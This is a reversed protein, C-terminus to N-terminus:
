HSLDAALVGRRLDRDAGKQLRQIQLNAAGSDALGACVNVANLANGLNHLIGTAVEAAGAVRAADVLERHATELRARTVLHEAVEAELVHNSQQLRAEVASNIRTTAHASSLLIISITLTIVTNVVAPDEDISQPPYWGNVSGVSLVAVAIAAMGGVITASRRGALAFALYPFIGLWLISAASAGGQQASITSLVIVLSAFLQTVCAEVSAGRRIRFPTAFALLNVVVTMGWSIYGMESPAFSLMAHTGSALMLLAVWLVFRLALIEGAHGRELVDSPLFRDLWSPRLGTQPADPM